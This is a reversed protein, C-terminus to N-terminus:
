IKIDVRHCYVKLTEVESLKSNATVLQRSAKLKKAIGKWDTVTRHNKLYTVYFSKGYLGIAELVNGNAEDRGAECLTKRLQKKRHELRKIEDDIEGYEDVLSATDRLPTVTALKAAM